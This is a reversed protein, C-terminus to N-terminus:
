SRELAAQGRETITYNNFDWRRSRRTWFRLLGWRRLKELRLYQGYHYVIAGGSFQMGACIHLSALDDATLKKM